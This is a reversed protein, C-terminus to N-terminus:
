KKREPHGGVRVEGVAAVMTRSSPHTHQAAHHHRAPPTRAAMAACRRGGARRAPGSCGGSTMRGCQRQPSPPSKRSSCESSHHTQPVPHSGAARSGCRFVIRPLLLLLLLLLSSLFSCTAFYTHSLLRLLLLCTINQFPSRLHSSARVGDIARASAPVHRKSTQREKNKKKKKKKKKQQQHQQQQHQHQHQQQGHKKCADPTPTESATM